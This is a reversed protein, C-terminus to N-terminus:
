NIIKGLKSIFLADLFRIREHILDRPLTRGRTITSAIEDLDYSDTFIVIDSIMSNCISTGKTTIVTLGYSLYTLIKSPFIYKDYEGQKQLNLAFDADQLLSAYEQDDLLGLYVVAQRGCSNNTNELTEYFVSKDKVSISGSIYLVYDKSLKPMVAMAVFAGGREIDIYGTFVLKKIKFSSNILPDNNNKDHNLGAVIYPGYCVISNTVHLEKAMVESVVISNEKFLSLFMQELKTEMFRKKWVRSYIDEIELVLKFQKILKSIIVPIISVTNHYLIVTDEPAVNMLFFLLWLQGKLNSLIRYFKTDSKYSPSFILKCGSKIEVADTIITKECQNIYQALSVVNVQINKSLICDIIYNMKKIASPMLYRDSEVLKSDYFGIYIVKGM